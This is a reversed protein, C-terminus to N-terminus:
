PRTAATALIPSVDIGASREERACRRAYRVRRTLACSLSLSKVDIYVHDATADLCSFRSRIAATPRRAVNGVTSAIFVFLNRSVIERPIRARQPPTLNFSKCLYTPTSVPLCQCVRTGCCARTKERKRKTERAVRAEKDTMPSFPVASAPPIFCSPFLLPLSLSVQM